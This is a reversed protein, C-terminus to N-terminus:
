PLLKALASSLTGENTFVVEQRSGRQLHGGRCHVAAVNWDDDFVPSGSSGPMTTTRYQARVADVYTVQNNQLSVQKFGGQPHQVINVRDGVTLPRTALRTAVERDAADAIAVATLDFRTDTVFYRDPDLRYSRVGEGTAETDALLNFEARAHRCTEADALVHNNTVIVGGGLLFCTGYRVRVGVRVSLRAVSEGARAGLRLFEVPRLTNTGIIKEEPPQPPLDSGPVTIPTPEGVDEVIAMLDDAVAGEMMEALATLFAAFATRGDPLRGRRRLADLLMTSASIPSGSIDIVPLLSQFGTAIVIAQRDRETALMPLRAIVRVARGFQEDTPPM